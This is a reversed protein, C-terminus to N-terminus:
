VEDRKLQHRIICICLLLECLLFILFFPYVLGHRFQGNALYDTLNTNIYLSGREHIIRDINSCVMFFLYNAILVSLAHKKMIISVAYAFMGMIGAVFAAWFAYLVNYFQPYDIALEKFIYGHSIESRYYGPGVISNAWNYDYVNSTSIYDNGNVPFLLSNLLINLLLPILIVLATGIFCAILQGYYYHKRTGRSQVYLTVGSKNEKIYSLGYPLVILFPFIQAIYAWLDSAYNFIYLTHASPLAYIYFGRYEMVYYIPVVISIALMMIFAFRFTKHKLMLNLNYNIYKLLM